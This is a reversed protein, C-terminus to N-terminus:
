REVTVDGKYLVERGDLFEVVAYYVFVAPNMDQGGFRGDWGLTPDNPQFNERVFVQEGWRSYIQFLKVQKVGQLGTYVTFRDNKGDENPSFINPIYVKVNNEVRLLLAAEDRCGSKTVVLIQYQQQQLPQVINTSLCTDCSLWTSPTWVIQDIESPPVNVTADVQYSEGLQVTVLDDVLVKFVPPQVITADVSTTCGSADEIFITYDGTALGSFYNGSQVYPGGSLTFEIPAKAGLVTDILITGTQGLCGPQDVTAFATPEKPSIVVADTDSCGNGTSTVLLTYTGPAGVMPALTNSGSLIVGDPSTWHYTLIGTGGTASGSLSLTQGFCDISSPTGASATPFSQDAVVTVSLANNCGNAPDVGLLFYTNPQTVNISSGAGIISTDQGIVTAWEFLIGTIPSGGSLTVSGIACTLASPPNVFLPPYLQNQNITISATDSCFTLTDLIVFHYTGPVDITLVTGGPYSTGNGDLWVTNANNSGKVEGALVIEDIKCDLVDDPSAFIEAEPDNRIDYVEALTTDLCGNVSVILNYIGPEDAKINAQNSNGVINGTLASWQFTANPLSSSGLIDVQLKQCTIPEPLAAAAVPKEYFVIPTGTSIVTCYHALNVNGLGDNNGALASIYYSTGYAMVAPDFCFTPQSSRALENVILTGSGEHLVFELVDNPGLVQGLADYDATVCGTGCHALDAGGMTGVGTFCSALGISFGCIEACGNADTVTVAYNGVGLNNLPFVGPAVGNQTGGPNWSVSYPAVGGGIQVEANGDLLGPQSVTNLAACAVQVATAPQDINFSATATCGGADTVTVAYNGATLGAPDEVNGLNPLWNFNFPQTGGNPALNIAGTNEDFCLIDLQTGAVTLVATNGVTFSATSSCTGGASVTVTYNGAPIGSLNQSGPGSSWAYTYGPGGSPMAPTIVLDISGNFVLCSSNPSVTGALSFVLTNEPVNVVASETCNNADTVTVTYIGGAVNSLDETTQGSAWIYSFPALGSMVTLNVGGDSQNCLEALVNQLLSPYIVDNTVFYTASAICNGSETVQVTYAGAPLNALDETTEGNSWLYTYSGAPTVTLEVSGNLIACNNYPSTNGSLSFTSSNNAVNLTTDASCGNGDTVTLAYNGPLVNSIDETTAANSWAFTYPLTGGTTSIDISGNAQGCIAALATADLQLAATNDLVVAFATATCGNANSAIVSYNGPFLNSLDETTAANSWNFTYNGAPLISIDLSGNAAICNNNATAVVGINLSVVNDQVTDQTITTCGLTDTVTVSYIGPPVNALDETTAANSWNFAYNGAPSISIDLSGNPAICNNNPTAVVGINLSAINDQVTDRAIATCGLADTVTVSYIGSPVNALDETTAANSWLFTYNGAPLVNIGVGGNPAFCANNPIPTIAVNIPPNNSEVTTSLTTSCGNIDTVTVLYNGSALNTLDQTSAGNSWSYTYNNVPSVSLDISGNPATCSTNIIALASISFPIEDILIADAHATCGNSGTVTVSYNGPALDTRDQPDNSGPIDEWDFTYPPPLTTFVTLSLSGNSQGCTPATPGLIIEIPISLDLVEFTRTYTCIGISTVTVTYIGPALNALDESTDGTSWEYIYTGAPTPNIDISGNQNPDCLTNHVIVGNINLPPNTNTVTVSRTATCGNAGTVTVSYTGASLNTLDETTEGNSWLYTYPALGDNLHNVNVSGNSLDCTSKIMTLSFAPDVPLNKVHGSAVLSCTGLTVTVFYLGQSLFNISDTTAGTSWLFTYGPNSPNPIARVSGNPNGNCGNNNKEEVDVTFPAADGIIITHVGADGNVDTVTVTYTGSHLGSLDEDTEGNSWVYTFPATGNSVSLNVSGLDLGCTDPTTTSTLILPPLNPIPTTAALLDSFFFFTLIPFLYFHRM